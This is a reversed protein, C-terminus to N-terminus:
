SSWRQPGGRLSSEAPNDITFTGPPVRTQLAEWPDGAEEAAIKRAIADPDFLPKSLEDEVVDAEEIVEGGDTDGTIAKVPDAEVLEDDPAPLALREAEIGRRLGACHRERVEAQLVEADAPSVVLVDGASAQTLLARIVRPASKSGRLGLADVFARLLAAIVEAQDGALRMKREEAEVLLRELMSAKDSLVGIAVAISQVNRSQPLAEDLRAIAKEAARRAAAATRRLQEDLDVGDDDPATAPDENTGPETIETSPQEPAAEAVRAAKVHWRELTRVTVGAESAAQDLGVEEVRALAAERRERSYSQGPM